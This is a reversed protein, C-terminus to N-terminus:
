REMLVKSTNNEKTVRIVHDAKEAFAESHTVAIIQEVTKLRSLAEALRDISGDERGLSETPEDLLLMRPGHGVRSQMIIQGVGLRYAFALLTREGGSLNMVGREHGEESRVSPTYDENISVFLQPEGFGLLEDLVQQVMRELYKIFERRLRPQISRYAQRIERLVELLRKVREIREAKSYASDLREKIDDIRSAIEKIRSEASRVGHKLESYEEFAKNRIKQAEELEGLDIKAMEARLDYLKRKIDEGERLMEEFEARDKDLAKREEEIRREAEEIRTEITQLDSLVSSLTRSMRELDKFRRRLRDMKEKYELTERQMRKLLSERYAAPLPQLCLPCRSEKTLTSARQASTAMEKRAREEEAQIGALEEVLSNRMEKLAEVTMNSPLGAEELLSRKSAEEERLRNIWAELNRLNEERSRIEDALRASLNELAMVRSRLNAERGRLEESRRRLAELRELRATAERLRVEAKSLREKLSRLEEEKEALERVAEEYERQFESIRAVDPDRELTKLESEYWNIVSRANTWAAEYDSLGFLVDLRRRRETPRMDLLDKLREQRIWIVERFLDRDIGTIAKLQEAVAESKMKAILRDGEFLKLQEMDQSIRKGRRELARWITYEKGEVVFKLAVKGRECGERLLYEYSRGLPDGFLAFDIAYLVSSKGRGLGGVLCTFGDQFNILTKKHSRINEMLLARVKL